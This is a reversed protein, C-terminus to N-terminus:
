QRISETPGRTFSGPHYADPVPTERSHHWAQPPHREKLPLIDSILLFPIHTSHPILIYWETDANPDDVPVNVPVDM